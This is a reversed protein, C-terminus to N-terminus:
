ERGQLTMHSSVARWADDRRVFVDTFSFLLAAPQGSQNFRNTGTIIATDGYTRVQMDQLQQTSGVPPPAASLVEAKNRRHGNSLTEVFSPDLIRDLTAMDRSATAQVWARELTEPSASAGPTQAICQMSLLAFSISAFCKSRAACSKM